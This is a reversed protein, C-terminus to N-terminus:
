FRHSGFKKRNFHLRVDNASIWGSKEGSERGINLEKTLKLLAQEKICEEATAPMHSKNYPM